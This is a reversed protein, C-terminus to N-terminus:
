DEDDEDDYRGLVADATAKTLEVREIMGPVVREYWRGAYRYASYAAMVAGTILVGSMLVSPNAHRQYWPLIPPLKKM